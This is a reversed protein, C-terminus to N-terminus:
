ENIANFSNMKFWYRYCKHWHSFFSIIFWFISLYFLISNRSEERNCQSIQTWPRSAVTISNTEIISMGFNYMLIWWFTESNTREQSWFCEKQDILDNLKWHEISHYCFFCFRHTKQFQHLCLIYFYLFLLLLLFFINELYIYYGSHTMTNKKRKM